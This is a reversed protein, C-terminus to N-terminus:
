VYKQFATLCLGATLDVINSTAPGSEQLGEKRKQRMYEGIEGGKGGGAFALSGNVDEQSLHETKQRKVPREERKTVNHVQEILKGYGTGEDDPQGHSLSDQNPSDFVFHPAASSPRQPPTEIESSSATDLTDDKRLKANHLSKPNLLLRPDYGHSAARTLGTRATPQEKRGTNDFDIHTRKHKNSQPTLSAPCSSLRQFCPETSIPIQTAPPVSSLRVISFSNGNTMHQKMVDRDLLAATSMSRPMNDDAM